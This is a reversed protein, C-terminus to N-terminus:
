EDIFAGDSLEAARVFRYGTNNQILQKSWAKVRDWHEAGDKDRWGNERCYGNNVLRVEAVDKGDRYHLDNYKVEWNNPQTIVDEMERADPPDEELRHNLTSMWDSVGWFRSLAWGFYAGKEYITYSLAMAPANDNKEAMDKSAVSRCGDGDLRYQKYQVLM